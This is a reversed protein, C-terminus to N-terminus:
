SGYKKIIQEMDLNELTKARQLDQLFLKRLLSPKGCVQLRPQMAQEKSCEFWTSPGLVNKLAAQGQPTHTLVLSVGYGDDFDPKTNEIGWFDGITLDTVRGIQTYPCHLCSSRLSINKFFLRCWKNEALPQTHDKGAMTFLLTHGADPKAKNRFEFATLKNGYSKELYRVYAEWFGGSPVGYCIHDTLLLKQTDARSAELYLKLGHAMCPDACYLVERGATLDERVERFTNQPDSQVYKTKLLLLLEQENEARSQRLHFNEDFGAGFVVGGKALVAEALLRFAGGSTSAQRLPLDAKIGFFRETSSPLAKDLPCVDECQGCQVCLETSIHPYLFGDTGPRMKIAQASCIAACAGCGFCREQNVKLM